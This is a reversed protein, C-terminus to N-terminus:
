RGTPTDALAKGADAGCDPTVVLARLRGPTPTPLVLLVGPQGDLLVPRAGLVVAGPAGVRTLCGTLRAPDSLEALGRGSAGAAAGALQGRSLSLPTTEPSPAPTPVARVPLWALAVAAAVALAVAGLPHGTRSARIATARPGSLDRTPWRNRRARRRTPAARRPVRANAPGATALGARAPEATAPPPPLQALADHWRRVLDAPPELDPVGALTTRLELLESEPVTSM